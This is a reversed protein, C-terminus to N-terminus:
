DKLKNTTDNFFSEDPELSFEEIEKRALAIKTTLEKEELSDETKDKVVEIESIASSFASTPINGISSFFGM